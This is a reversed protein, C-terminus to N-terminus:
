LKTAIQSFRGQIKGETCHTDIECMSTENPSMNKLPHLQLRIAIQSFIKRLIGLVLSERFNRGRNKNNNHYCHTTQISMGPSQVAM